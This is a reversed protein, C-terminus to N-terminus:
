SGEIQNKRFIINCINQFFNTRKAVLKYELLALDTRSFPIERVINFDKEIFNYKKLTDRFDALSGHETLPEVEMGESYNWLQNSAPIMDLTLIFRGGPKLWRAVWRVVQEWSKRPMHEVVSVSYIIDYKEKPSYKLVNMNHSNITPMITSYDLFGWENWEEQKNLDRLIPHFDLTTVLYERQGLVIPLPSVGAGIDAVTTASNQTIKELVWPYEISRISTKTFFGLHRRSTDMILKLLDKRNVYDIIHEFEHIPLDNQHYTPGTTNKDAVIFSLGRYEGITIIENFVGLNRLSKSLPEHYACIDSTYEERPPSEYGTVILRQRSAHALAKILNLYEDKTKQHILVDLCIVVDAYEDSHVNISGHVFNWEPRQKKAIKLAEASLDYGTYSQFDFVKSLELDGCGIDIVQKDMFGELSCSLLYHKLSLIDGRSGAGSGLNPFLQYRMSWFLENNFNQQLITKIQNNVQAIQLDIEPVGSTKISGDPLLHRHYHIVKINKNPLIQIRNAELHIPFNDQASLLQPKIGLQSLALSMAVQDVHHQYDPTLIDLHELIWLAQKKWTTGIELLHKRDIIYLGGNFNNEYTVENDSLACNSRIKKPKEVGASQFIDDLIITPPNPLDVVKASFVVDVDMDPLSWFFMDCDVLVVKDYTDFAESFCQEIKNCYSHGEFPQIDITEVKLRTLLTRFSQSVDPLCHIKIDVPDCKINRLLSQILIYAQWEFHPSSDVVCSFAIKM